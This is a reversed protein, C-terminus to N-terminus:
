GPLAWGLDVEGAPQKLHPRFLWKARYQGPGGVPSHGLQWCGPCQFDCHGWASEDEIGCWLPGTEGVDALSYWGEFKEAKCLISAAWVQYNM